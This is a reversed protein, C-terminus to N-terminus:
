DGDVLGQRPTEVIEIANQNRMEEETYLDWLAIVVTVKERYYTADCRRVDSTEMEFTLLSTFVIIEPM